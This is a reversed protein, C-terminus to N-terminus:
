GAVQMGEGCHCIPLGQEIWKQTTRVTYGCKPCALKILRTSQKKVPSKNSDLTAHPYAGVQVALQRLTAALEPGAETSTMKGVLGLSVALKRFLPGHGAQLGVAAHVLEHVLTGLVLVLDDICPSIFIETTQDQSAEPAWCQGIARLKGLAMRSPWGCSIRVKAPLPCGQAQFLPAIQQTMQNLWEERTTKTTTM